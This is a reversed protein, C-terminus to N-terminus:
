IFLPVMDLEAWCTSSGSCPPSRCTLAASRGIRFAPYREKWAPQRRVMSSAAMESSSMPLPLEMKPTKSPWPPVRERMCAQLDGFVDFADEDRLQLGALQVLLFLVRLGERLGEPPDVLYDLALLALLLQLDNALFRISSTEVIRSNRQPCAASGTHHQDRRGLDERGVRPVRPSHKAPLSM